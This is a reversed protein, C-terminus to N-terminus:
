ETTGISQEGGEYNKQRLNKDYLDNVRYDLEAFDNKIEWSLRTVETDKGEPNLVFNNQLLNIFNEYCFRNKVSKYLYQQNHKNNLPTLSNIFHFSNYLKEAKLLDRNSTALGDGSIIVFKPVEFKDDSLYMAGVRNQIKQKFNTGNGFVGTVKDVAGGLKKFFNEFKTLKSKRTALAYPLRIQTDGTLNRYGDL